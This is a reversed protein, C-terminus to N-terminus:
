NRLEEYAELIRSRVEATMQAYQQEPNPGVPPPCVPDLFRVKLKSFGRFKEGRPWAEYFGEIAVPVVPCQTNIALIAAGKKFTKPPGDISREGEPFLVLVGHNRLGYAGARMAPVLNADPDIVILRFSEAIRRMISSGFIESTGVYFTDRMTRWPLCAVVVPGDLFSQHNPSLIFPGEAPIKDLGEVQLHFLDRCFVQWLRLVFFALPALLPHSQDITRREVEGPEERIIEDWGAANQQNEAGLHAIVADVLDRV